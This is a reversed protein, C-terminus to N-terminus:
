RDLPSHCGFTFNNSHSKNVITNPKGIAEGCVHTLVISILIYLGQVNFDVIIYFINMIPM